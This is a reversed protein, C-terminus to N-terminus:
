TCPYQLLMLLKTLSDDHGLKISKTPTPTLWWMKSWITIPKPKTCLNTRTTGNAEMMQLLAGRLITRKGYYILGLVLSFYFVDM